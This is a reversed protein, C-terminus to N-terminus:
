KTTAIPVFVRQKLERDLIFLGAGKGDIMKLQELVDSVNAEEEVQEAVFWQLFNETAYDGEERAIRVLNNISETVEREHALVEGYVDLVDDWQNKPANIQGIISRGGRELIYEYFKMTHAFEEEAQIRMWNAFGRLNISEFYSSMSLYLNSSFMERVIQDNLDAEMKKTFM